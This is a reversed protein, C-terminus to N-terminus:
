SADWESEIEFMDAPLWEVKDWGIPDYTIMYPQGYVTVFEGDRHVFEIIYKEGKTLFPWTHPNVCTVTDGWRFM